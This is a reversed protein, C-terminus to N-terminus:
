GACATALFGLQAAATGRWFADDHGGPPFDAAALDPVGGAFQRDAPCFPDSRGCTIRVPIGALRARGAFADHAAFDAPGDFAGPAADAWRTWLAPSSAAVAAVRGPGLRQALLLAGYGGMSWGLLGLRDTRLGRSALLPLFEEVLMTQPDEGSRRRHWYSHDGGDVSALALPPAGADVVQALYRDLWLEEVASGADGGRGHLVLAVRLTDGATRGPPHVLRWAVDRGCARSAFAGSAAPGPAASPRDPGGRVLDAVRRRVGPVEAAAGGAVLVAAGLAGTLFARRSPVACAPV